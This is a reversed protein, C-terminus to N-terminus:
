SSYAAVVIGFSGKGITEIYTFSETLLFRNLDDIYNQPEM